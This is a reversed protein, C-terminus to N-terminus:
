HQSPTTPAVIIDNSLDFYYCDPTPEGGVPIAENGLTNTIYTGAVPESIYGGHPILPVLSQTMPPRNGHTGTQVGTWTVSELNETPEPVRLVPDIVFTGIAPKSIGIFNIPM